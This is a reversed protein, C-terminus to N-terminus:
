VLLMDKFPDYQESEVFEHISGSSALRRLCGPAQDGGHVELMRVRPQCDLLDLIGIKADGTVVYVEDKFVAAHEIRQLTKRCHREPVFIVLGDM